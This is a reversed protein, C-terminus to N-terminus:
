TPVLLEDQGDILPDPCGAAAPAFCWNEMDAHTWDSAAVGAIEGSVAAAAVETLGENGRVVQDLMMMM